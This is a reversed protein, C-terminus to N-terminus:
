GFVRAPLSPRAFIRVARADDTFARHRGAGTVGPARARRGLEGARGLMYGGGCGTSGGGLRASAWDLLRTVGARENTSGSAGRARWWRREHAGRM